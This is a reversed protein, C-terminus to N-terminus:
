GRLSNNIVLQAWSMTGPKPERIISEKLFAVAKELGEDISMLSDEHEISLVRDYGVLCLNCILDRWYDLLGTRTGLLLM